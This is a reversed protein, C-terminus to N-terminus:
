SQINSGRPVHRGPHRLCLMGLIHIDARAMGDGSMGFTSNTTKWLEVILSLCYAVGGQCGVTVRRRWQCKITQSICGTSMVLWVVVSLNGVSDLVRHQGLLGPQINARAMFMGVGSMGFTSNTTKRLEMRRRCVFLVPRRCCWKVRGMSYTPEHWLCEM